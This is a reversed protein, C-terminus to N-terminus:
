ADVRQLWDARTIRFFELTLNHFETTPELQTMGIRRMVAMSKVNEPLTIAYIDDLGQVEFGYRLAGEAAETAYGHGWEAQALHWGVEVRSDNPLPKLLITGVVVGDSKREIAWFGVRPDAEIREIIMQLQARQAELSEHPSSLLWRVVEPDSYVRFAAAVDRETWRRVCLRPTEFINM